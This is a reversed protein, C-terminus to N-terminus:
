LSQDLRLRPALVRIGLLTAIPNVVLACVLFLLCELSFGVSGCGPATRTEARCPPRTFWTCAADRRPPTPPQVLVLDM